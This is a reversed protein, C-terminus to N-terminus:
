RTIPVRISRGSLDLDDVLDVLIERPDEPTDPGPFFEEVKTFRTTTITSTRLGTARLGVGSDIFEIRISRVDGDLDEGRVAVRLQGQALMVASAELADPRHGVRLDAAWADSTGNATAIVAVSTGGPRDHEYGCEVPKSDCVTRLELSSPILRDLDPVVFAALMEDGGGPLVAVVAERAGELPEYCLEFSESRGRTHGSIRNHGLSLNVRRAVDCVPGSIDVDAPMADRPRAGSDQTTADPLAADRVDEGGADAAADDRPLGADTVTQEEVGCGSLAAFALLCFLLRLTPM